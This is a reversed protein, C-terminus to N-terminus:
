NQAARQQTYHDLYAQEAPTFPAADSANLKFWITNELWFRYIFSAFSPACVRIADAIDAMTVEQGARAEDVYMAMDGPFALVRHASGPTLYLYWLVCDQQDSLFSVIYAGDSGPCPVLHTGLEFYCATCSPIRDQLAPSAMLRTFSPPLSFGLERAEAAIADLAGREEPPNRHVAMQGDVTDSLPALWSLSEDPEALPPLSEYPYLEYTGSCPRYTGLEFSWWGASFPAGSLSEM